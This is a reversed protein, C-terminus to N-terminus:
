WVHIVDFSTILLVNKDATLPVLLGSSLKSPDVLISDGEVIDTVLDGVAYVVLKSMKALLEKNLAEKTNEDVILSSEEKKPLTVYVRHGRLKKFELAM